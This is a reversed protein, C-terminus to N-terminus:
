IDDSSDHEDEANGTPNEAAPDVASDAQIAMNRKFTHAIARLYRPIDNEYRDHFAAVLNKRKLAYKRVAASRCSKQSRREIKVIQLKKSKGM